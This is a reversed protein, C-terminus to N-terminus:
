TLLGPEGESGGLHLGGVRDWGESSCCVKADGGLHVM